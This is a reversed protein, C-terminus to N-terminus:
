VLRFVLAYVCSSIMCLSMIARHRELSKLCQEINLIYLSQVLLLVKVTKCIVDLYGAGRGVVVHEPHAIKIAVIQHLFFNTVSM